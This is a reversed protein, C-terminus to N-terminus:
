LEFRQIISDISRRVKHTKELAHISYRFPGHINQLLTFIIDRNSISKMKNLEQIVKDAKKELSEIEHLHRQNMEQAWHEFQEVFPDIDDAIEGNALQFLWRMGDLRYSEDSTITFSSIEIDNSETESNDSSITILTPLDDDSSVNETEPIESVNEVLLERCYPCQFNKRAVNKMLCSTHFQHGCLTTLWNNEKKDVLDLCIPCCISSESNECKNLSMQNTTTM